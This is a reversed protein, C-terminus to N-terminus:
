EEEIIAYNTTLLTSAVSAANQLASITVLVPDIIGSEQLSEMKGTRFNFGITASSNKKQIEMVRALTLDPSLGANEAMQCIPASVAELVAQAGHAQEPHEITIQALERAALLACGGGPVIGDMRAARVAELADEVRHKKEIMEVETAAGVRIVAVGSALRTVREQLRECEHINETQKIEEKLLEIKEEIKAREGSGGVFTTNYKSAEVTKVQGLDNLQADRLKKGSERSVFSAGISLALDKLINRREEGYRPAKVAMVKLTGRVANMILAALAQGEVEEAVIILPRSERATLELAPMLEDVTSLKQDTVLVLADNYSGVGRREDTMFQTSFFGGDFRFGEEVELSSDLSRAEEVTIAGNKGVQDVATAIMKGIATDGNASIRAINEIDEVSSIPISIEKLKLVLEEVAKDIGRKLEVPSTDSSLYKYAETYIARALVTATTTGDGAVSNTQASAQKLIQATANEVPDKLDVFEAVTVGDKTIIPRKGKQHLIVNRGKPGLTSAVNDALKNIGKLIKEQLVKNSSYVKSM